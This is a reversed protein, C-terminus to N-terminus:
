DAHRMTQKDSVINILTLNPRKFTKYTKGSPLVHCNFRSSKHSTKFRRIADARRAARHQVENFHVKTWIGSHCRRGSQYEATSAFWVRTCFGFSCNNIGLTDFGSSVCQFSLLNETSIMHDRRLRYMTTIYRLSEPWGLVIEVCWLTAM